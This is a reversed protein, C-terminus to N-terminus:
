LQGADTLKQEELKRQKNWKRLERQEKEALEAVRKNVEEENYEKPKCLEEIEEDELGLLKLKISKELLRSPINPIQKYEGLLSNYTGESMTGPEPHYIEEVGWIITPKKFM